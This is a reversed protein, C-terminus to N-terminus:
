DTRRRDARVIGRFGVVYREFLLIVAPHSVEWSDTELMMMVEGM